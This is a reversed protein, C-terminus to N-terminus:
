LRVLGINEDKDTLIYLASENRDLTLTLHSSEIEAESSAIVPLARKKPLSFLSLSVSRRRPCRNIVSVAAIGKGIRAIYFAESDIAGVRFASYPFFPFKRVKGLTRVTELVEHDWESENWNMPYRAGEASGMRGALLIEDGYYVSPMGPLMYMIMLAGKYLDKSMVRENNHLRPTDHSDVLNMQFFAMQDPLSIVADSIAREMEEGTFPPVKEPDHGWFPTLYRDSEGMWSRILRGCGYYNMVGDWADGQLYDSSDDWDEGVLYLDHKIGKLSERVEKWIGRCLQDKGNRGVEPSVDLRWGDICFPPRIFRQMVSEHARYMIDRLRQSRYNLQALTGVGQWLAPKGDEIYYYGAEESEPDEIAKKLWPCEIGTHNISIDLILRIGKDHLARSLSILAEDGGIHPDVHFFDVADYRHVTRATYIPNLYLVTVGMSLLHDIHMEIGKLDGNYFDLCRASEFPRPVSGSDPATTMAGDFEYEGEKVGESSGSRCFRDPFIQYCVSSPIWSPADLSPLLTFRDSIKPCNRTIGSKSLYWAQGNWGFIFFYRFPEDSCGIRASASYLHEGNLMGRHEMDYSYLLGTDGDARLIAYDPKESFVASLVAEDGKGPFLPSVFLDSFSSFAKIM